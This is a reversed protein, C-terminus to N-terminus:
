ARRRLVLFCIASLAATVAFATWMFQFGHLQVLTGGLYLGVLQGAGSVTNLLGSNTGRTREDGSEVAFTMANATYSGFTVGRVLQVALLTMAAGAAAGLLILSTKRMM